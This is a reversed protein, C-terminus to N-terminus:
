RETESRWEGFVLVEAFSLLAEELSLPPSSLAQPPTPAPWDGPLRCGNPLCLEPSLLLASFHNSFDLLSTPSFVVDNTSM